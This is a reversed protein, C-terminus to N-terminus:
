TTTTTAASSGSRGASTLGWCEMLERQAQPVDPTGQEEAQRYQGDPQM